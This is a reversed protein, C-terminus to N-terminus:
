PTGERSTPEPYFVGRITRTPAHASPRGGPPVFKIIEALDFCLQNAIKEAHLLSTLHWTRVTEPHVGFFEAVEDIRICSGRRALSARREEVAARLVWVRSGRRRYPIGNRYILTYLVQTTVGLMRAAEGVSIYGAPDDM